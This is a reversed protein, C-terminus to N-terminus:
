QSQREYRVLGRRTGVWLWRGASVVATTDKGPGARGQQWNATALPTQRLGDMTSAYLMQGDLTLWRPKGM